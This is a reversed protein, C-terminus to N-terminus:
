RQANKFREKDDEAELARTRDLAVAPRPHAGRVTVLRFPPPETPERRKLADALSGSIFARLRIARRVQNTLRDILFLTARMFCLM